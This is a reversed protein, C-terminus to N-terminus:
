SHQLLLHYSMNLNILERCPVDPSSSPFYFPIPTFVDQLRGLNLLAVALNNLVQAIITIKSNKSLVIPLRQSVVLDEPNRKHVKELITVVAIWDGRTSSQLAANLDRSTDDSDLLAEARQFYKEASLIDGAELRIRGLASLLYASPQSQNALGNLIKEAGRHDKIAWPHLGQTM